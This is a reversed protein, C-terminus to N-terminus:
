LFFLKLKPPYLCLPSLILPWLATFLLKLCVVQHVQEGLRLVVQSAHSFHLSTCGWRRDSCFESVRLRSLVFPHRHKSCSMLLHAVFQTQSSDLAVPAHKLHM